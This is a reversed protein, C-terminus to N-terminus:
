LRGPVIVGRLAFDLVESAVTTPDPAAKQRLLHGIAGRLAGLITAAMLRPNVQRVLGVTMGYTLSSEILGAVDDFFAEVRVAVETDPALGHNLLLQILARDSLVYDLVRSVNEQLQLGPPPAGDEVDVRTILETLDRIADELISEFVADKSTFYLYFTGRAIDAAKIVDNISAQHFGKSAFVKKAAGLIQRRRQDRKEIAETM